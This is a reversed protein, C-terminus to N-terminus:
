SPVPFSRIAQAEDNHIDFLTILKTIELLDQLRKTVNLLKLRGGQQDITQRSTELVGIGNSDVYTVDALNLLICAKSEALLDRVTRRLTEVPDDSKDGALQGSLVLITVNSEQRQSITLQPM